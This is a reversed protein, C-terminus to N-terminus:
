DFCSGSPMAGKRVYSSQPDCNVVEWGPGVVQLHQVSPRLSEAVKELDRHHRSRQSRSTMKGDCGLLKVVAGQPALSVAIQVGHGLTLASIRVPLPHEEFWAPMEHLYPGLLEGFTEKWFEVLPAKAILHIGHDLAAQGVKMAVKCEEMHKIRGMAKFLKLCGGKVVPDTEVLWHHTPVIGTKLFRKSLVYRNLSVTGLSAGRRRKYATAQEETFNGTCLVWVEPKPDAASVNAGYTALWDPRLVPAASEDHPAQTTAQFREALSTREGAQSDSTPAAGEAEQAVMSEASPLLAAQSQFRRKAALDLLFFAATCVFLLKAFARCSCSSAGCGKAHGTRAQRTAGFVRM